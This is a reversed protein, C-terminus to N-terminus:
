RGALEYGTSRGGGPSKKLVGQTRSVEALPGTLVSLDYRWNPWDDAQWIYTNEGSDIRLNFCNIRQLPLNNEAYYAASIAALGRM